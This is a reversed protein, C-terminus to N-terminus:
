KGANRFKRIGAYHEELMTLTKGAYEKLGADKAETAAAKYAAIATEHGKANEDIFLKDFDAKAPLFKDLCKQHDAALAKPLAIGTKEAVAKLQEYAKQHDAAVQQAYKKIDDNQSRKAAIEGLQSELMHGSAAMTVFEADTTYKSPKIDKVDKDAAWAVSFGFATFLLATRIM